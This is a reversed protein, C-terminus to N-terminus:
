HLDMIAAPPVTDIVATALNIEALNSFISWNSADDCVRIAFYYVKMPDLGDIMVRERRGSAVPENDGTVEAADDWNAETIPETSYKIEYKRAKGIKGDDGVATWHLRVEGRHRGAVAQLDAVASPAITDTEDPLPKDPSPGAAAALSGVSLVICILFAFLRSMKESRYM